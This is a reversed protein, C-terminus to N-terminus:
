TQEHTRQEPIAWPQAIPYVRATGEGKLKGEHMCFGCGHSGNFQKFNQLVPRAVSDSACLGLLVKTVKKADQYKWEFGCNNLKNMEAVLPKLYTDMRPKGNGYWLCHLLM